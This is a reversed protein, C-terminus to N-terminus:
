CLLICIPTLFGTLQLLLLSLGDIGFTMNFNFFTIWYSQNILQFSLSKTDFPILLAMTFNFIVLSWFLSLQKMLLGQNVKLASLVPLIILPSM